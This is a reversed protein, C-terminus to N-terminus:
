PDIVGFGGTRRIRDSRRLAKLFSKFEVRPLAICSSPEGVTKRLLSLPIEDLNHRVSSDLALTSKFVGLLDDSPSIQWDVGPCPFGGANNM